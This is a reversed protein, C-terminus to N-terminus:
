CRCSPSFHEWAHVKAFHLEGSLALLMRLHPSMTVSRCCFCWIAHWYCCNTAYSLWSISWKGTTIQLFSKACGVFISIFTWLRLLAQIIWGCGCLIISIKRLRTQIPDGLGGAPALAVELVRMTKPWDHVLIRPDCHLSSFLLECTTWQSLHGRSSKGM